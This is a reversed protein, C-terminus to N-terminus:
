LEIEEIIEDDDDIDDFEPIDQSQVFQTFEDEADITVEEKVEAKAENKEPM